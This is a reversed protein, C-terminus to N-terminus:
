AIAAVLVGVAAYQAVWAAITFAHFVEHFGFWRPSPNPRKTAYVVAGLTYLVGGAAVLTVVLWGAQHLLTGMVPVVSWGLAIYLVTYLARPATPWSCRFVVGLIAGTWIVALLRTRAPDPLGLVAIPTYSGAIMLYVNSHDARKLLSTVRPSWHGLHYTASTAFLLFSTATYVAAATRAEGAPALWLLVLGAILALPAMGGHLWGRLRPKIPTVTAGLSAATM